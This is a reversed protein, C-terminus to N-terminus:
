SQKSFKSICFSITAFTRLLLKTRGSRVPQLVQVRLHLLLELGVGADVDRGSERLAVGVREDQFEFELHTDNRQLSSSPIEFLLNIFCRFM